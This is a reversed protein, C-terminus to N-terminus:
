HEQTKKLKIFPYHYILVLFFISAKTGFEQWGWGWVLPRLEFVM